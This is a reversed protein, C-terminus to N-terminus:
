IPNCGVSSFYDQSNILVTEGYSNSTEILITSGSHVRYITPQIKPWSTYETARLLACEEKTLSVKIQNTTPLNDKISNSQTAGFGSPRLIDEEPASVIKITNNADSDMSRGEGYTSKIMSPATTTFVVFAIAPLLLSLNQTWITKAFAIMLFGYTVAKLIPSSLWELLFSSVQLDVLQTEM